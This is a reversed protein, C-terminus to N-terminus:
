LVGYKRFVEVASAGARIEDRVRDEATVKEAARAIAETELAAPVVVLGDDDALILEGPEVRVGGLTVAVDVATVRQRHLSDRPSTGRSFVSFGIENM